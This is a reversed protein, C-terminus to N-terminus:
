SLLGKVIKNIVKGFKTESRLKAATIAKRGIHVLKVCLLAM